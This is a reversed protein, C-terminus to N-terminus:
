RAKGKGASTGLIIDAAGPPEPPMEPEDDRLDRVLGQVEPPLDLGPREVKNHAVGGQRAAEMLVWFDAIARAYSTQDVRNESSAACARHLEASAIRRVDDQFVRFAPNNRLEQIAKVCENSPNM